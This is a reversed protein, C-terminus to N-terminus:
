GYYYTGLKTVEGRKPGLMKMLVKNESARLNVTEGWCLILTLTVYLAAYSRNYCRTKQVTSQLVFFQSHFALFNKAKSFQEYPRYSLFMDWNWNASLFRVHIATHDFGPREM